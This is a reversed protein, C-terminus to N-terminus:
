REGEKKSVGAITNCVQKLSEEFSGPEQEFIHFQCAHRLYDIKTRTEAPIITCDGKYPCRLCNLIYNDSTDRAKGIM